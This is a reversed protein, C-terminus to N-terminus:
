AGPNTVGGTQLLNLGIGKAVIEYAHFDSSDWENYTDPGLSFVGEGAWQQNADALTYKFTVNAVLDDYISTVNLNEVTVKHGNVFAPYPQVPRFFMETPKRVPYLNPAHFIGM